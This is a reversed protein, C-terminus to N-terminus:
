DTGGKHSWYKMAMNVFIQRKFMDQALQIWDEFEYEIETKNFSFKINNDFV